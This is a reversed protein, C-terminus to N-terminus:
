QSNWSYRVKLRGLHGYQINGHFQLQGLVIGSSVGIKKSFRVIKKWDKSKFSLMENQYCPPVLTDRAFNNAEEEEQNNEIDRGELFVANKDHLLLHGIEHFLSFWFHDDSLYRFSLVMLARHPSTFYTAGSARSGKPSKVVTFAVGCESLITKLRNLFINPNSTRTLARIDPLANQLKDANWNSCKDDRTDLEAKRLWAIVSEPVTDFSSSTKFSVISLKKHYLEDWENLSSVGFFDLCKKIKEAKDLGKPIWNWRVMDAIPLRELWSIHEEQFSKLSDRYLSERKIWFKAPVNVLTELSSAIEETIPILGNFFNNIPDIGLIDILEEQQINQMSLVQRLTEGPPSVWDPKFTDFSSM